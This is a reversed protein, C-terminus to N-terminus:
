RLSLQVVEFVGLLFASCLTDNSAARKKDAIMKSIMRLGKGLYEEALAEAKPSNCRHAFNMYAVAHIITSLCSDPSAQEYLPPIFAWLADSPEEVPLHPSELSTFDYVFREYALRRLDSKVAPAVNFPIVQFPVRVDDKIHSPTSRSRQSVTSERSSHVQSRSRSM